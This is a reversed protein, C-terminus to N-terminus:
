KSTNRYSEKFAQFVNVARSLLEEKLCLEDCLMMNKYGFAKYLTQVVEKQYREKMRNMILQEV